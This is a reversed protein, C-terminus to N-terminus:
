MVKENPNVRNADTDVNNYIPKAFKFLPDIVGSM